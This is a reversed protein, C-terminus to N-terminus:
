INMSISSCEVTKGGTATNASSYVNLLQYIKSLSCLPNHHLSLSGASLAVFAVTFMTVTIFLKRHHGDKKCFKM